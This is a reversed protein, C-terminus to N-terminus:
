RVWGTRLIGDTHYVYEYIEDEEMWDEPNAFSSKWVVVFDNIIMAFNRCVKCRGEKIIKNTKLFEEEIPTNSLQNVNQDYRFSISTGGLKRVYDIYRYVYDRTLNSSPGYVHNFNVDVGINLFIPITESLVEDTPINKQFFVQANDLYGIGHRSINLHNITYSMVEQIESYKDKNKFPNTM